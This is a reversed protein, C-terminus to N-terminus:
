RPPPAANSRTVDGQALSDVRIAFPAACIERLVNPFKARLHESVVEEDLVPDAWIGWHYRGLEYTVFPGPSGRPINAGGLSPDYSEEAQRVREEFTTGDFSSLVNELIKSTPETTTDVLLFHPCDPGVSNTLRTVPLGRWPVRTLTYPKAGTVPVPCLNGRAWRMPAASPRSRLVAREASVWLDGDVFARIETVAGLEGPLAVNQWRGERFTLLNSPAECANSSMPAKAGELAALVEENGTVAISRVPRAPAPLEDWGNATSAAVFGREASAGAAFLTGAPSLAVSLASAHEPLEILASPGGGSRFLEVARTHPSSGCLRGLIAVDARANTVLAQPDVLRTKCGEGAAPVPAARKTGLARLRYSTGDAPAVLLLGGDGFPELWARANAFRADLKWRTGAFRYLRTEAKDARLAFAQEPFRGAFGVFRDWPGCEPTATLAGDQVFSEGAPVAVSKGDSLWTSGSLFYPRVGGRDVWSALGLDASEPCGPTSPSPVSNSSAPASLPPGHSETSPATADPRPAKSCAYLLV